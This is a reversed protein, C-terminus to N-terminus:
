EHPAIAGLASARVAFVRDQVQGPNGLTGLPQGDVTAVVGGANGARVTIERAGRFERISGAPLTQYVVRKGDVDISLWCPQTIRLQLDVGSRDTRAADGASAADAQAASQQLSTAAFAQPPHVEDHGAATPTAITWILKAVLLLAIVSMAVLLAPYRFSSRRALSPMAQPARDAEVGGCQENFRDVVSAADLGLLRAYNRVFGRVYVPEGVTKWDEREMADVFMARMHLRRAADAVTTGSRERAERLESGITAM